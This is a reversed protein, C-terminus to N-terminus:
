SGDHKGLVSEHRSIMEYVDTLKSFTYRKRQLIAVLKSLVPLGEKGGQYIRKFIRKYILTYKELPIRRSSSLQFLDHLHFCFIILNPLPFIELLYFYSKGFLKIYSLAVPIRIISSFVTLPFEVVRLNDLFYPKTPKRSNNFTDPRISPFISSDFKFRHSALIEYDSGNIVGLPARYGIPEKGFFRKYAEKGRKIEFETNSEKPSPHSYSHLEFEVDLASLQKIQAPHTELLSGQVFCTLPIGKEKFFNVLEPVHELGEHSPEELLDGYDQEFDLTLCAIRKNKLKPCDIITYKSLGM